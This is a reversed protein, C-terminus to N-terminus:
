GPDALVLRGADVGPRVKLQLRDGGSLGGLGIAARGHEYADAVSAREGLGGYFGIAFNRASAEGIKGSVGVVCGVHALLAEAQAESYCASLVVLQVSEGAAGFAEALAERSVLQAGGGEAEFYLGDDSGVGTFHVVTPKLKRLERLLDLPTAAFRTELEFRDRHGSRELEELIARAQRDLAAPPTGTPNAALFLITHKNMLPSTSADRGRLRRPWAEDASTPEVAEEAALAKRLFWLLCEASARAAFAKFHDDRGHDAFDMVGKMVVADLRRHRQRHALEGIMASEMEIAV